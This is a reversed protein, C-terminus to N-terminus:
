VVQGFPKKSPTIQSSSLVIRRSLLYILLFHVSFFFKKSRNIPVEYPFDASKVHNDEHASDTLPGKVRHIIIIM